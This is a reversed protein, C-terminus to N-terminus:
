ETYVAQSVGRWAVFVSTVGQRTDILLNSDNYGIVAIEAGGCAANGECTHSGNRRGRGTELRM